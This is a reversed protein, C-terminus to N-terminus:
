EKISLKMRQILVVHCLNEKQINKKDLFGIKTRKIYKPDNKDSFIQFIYKGKPINKTETFVYSHLKQEDIEKQTIPVDRKFDWYLPCM